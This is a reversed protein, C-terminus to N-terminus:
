KKEIRIRKRNKMRSARKPETLRRKSNSIAKNKFFDLLEVETMSPESVRVLKLFFHITRHYLKFPAKQVDVTKSGGAWSVQTM